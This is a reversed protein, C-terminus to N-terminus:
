LILLGLCICQFIFIVIFINHGASFVVRAGAEILKTLDKGRIRKSLDDGKNFLPVITTPKFKKIEENKTGHFTNM